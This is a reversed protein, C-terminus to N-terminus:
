RTKRIRRGKRHNYLYQMLKGLQSGIKKARDSVVSFEDQSVYKHDLGYYLHSLTEASSRKAYSLFTIFEANTHSDNGEAINSMISQASRKIQDCWNWDHLKQARVIFADISQALTRAEQWAQIDEFRTFSMPTNWCSASIYLLLTLFNRKSGNSKKEETLWLIREM